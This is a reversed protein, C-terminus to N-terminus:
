LFIHHDKEYTARAEEALAPLEERTLGIFSLARVASGPPEAPKGGIGLMHCIGNAVSVTCLLSRLPEETMGFATHNHHLWASAVLANPFKWKALLAAGVETHPHGVAEVEVELIEDGGSSVDDFVALMEQRRRSIMIARGVDHLLGATFAEDLTVCPLRRAIHLAAVGTGISHEWLAREHEGFQALLDRSSASIVLNRVANFGMTSVARVLTSIEYSHGYLSSNAVKLIRSTMGSDPGIVKVLDSASSEDDSTVKLVRQAIPPAAPLDLDEDIIKDLDREGM